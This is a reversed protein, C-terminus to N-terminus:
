HQMHFDVSNKLLFGAEKYEPYRKEMEAMAEEKSAATATIKQFDDIYTIMASFLGIDSPAGHGPYVTPNLETYREKLEALQTKWNNVHANTVGQGMWLHVKNYGFDSTFLGNIDEVYVTTIHEAEMPLYQTTLALEGGGVLSLTEGSLVSINNEYDFGNPNKDSKPKLAPEADLWGVSEMWTSFGIIDKKIDENAVVVKADPFEKLLWDMGIYHDPHGHSILLHTLPLKKAKIVESLKKAEDTSRQLDMVVLSEGNSFLYSNVTATEGNFIDVDVPTAAFANSFVGFFLSMTAIALSYVRLKM